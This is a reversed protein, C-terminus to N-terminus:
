VKPPPDATLSFELLVASIWGPGTRNDDGPTHADVSKSFLHERLQYVTPIPQGNKKMAARLLALVGAVGPTAMSTGSMQQYGGGPRCSWIQTGAFATDIKEGASSFPAPSTENQMAAVSICDESRGPWDVNPTGGGSNGAAAVIWIGTQACERMAGLIYNDPSSSGLSMSIIDAKQSRCWQIASAIWQGSGSGGDSLGKGHLLTAAPAMGIQPNRSGVTGTVHTGHGNRDNGGSPSGTFDRIVVGPLEPHTGCGTDVIGVTVGKGNDGAVRLAAVNFRSIGWNAEGAQALVDASPGRILDPPIGFYESTNM